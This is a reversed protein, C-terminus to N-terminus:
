ITEKTINDIKESLKEIAENQNKIQTKAAENEQQYSNIKEETTIQDDSTQYALQDKLKQILTDNLEISAELAEIQKRLDKQEKKYVKKKYNVAHQLYDKDKQENKVSSEHIYYILEEPKQMDVKEDIKKSLITVRMALYDDPVNSLKLVFYDDSIKMLKSKISQYDGKATKIETQYKLNSLEKILTQDEDDIAFEFILQQNKNKEKSVLTLEKTGIFTNASVEDPVDIRKHTYFPSALILFGLILIVKLSRVYKSRIKFRERKKKNKKM